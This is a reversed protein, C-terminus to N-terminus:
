RGTPTGDAKKVAGGAASQGSKPVYSRFSEKFGWDLSGGSVTYGTDPEDATAPLSGVAVLGAVILFAALLASLHSRVRM